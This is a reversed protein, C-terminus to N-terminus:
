CNTSTLAVAKELIRFFTGSTLLMRAGFKPQCRCHSLVELTPRAYM